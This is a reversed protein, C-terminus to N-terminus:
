THSSRTEKKKEMTMCLNEKGQEIREIEKEKKKIKQRKLAVGVAYPPEWILPRIPAAAEPRCWWWLLTPDSGCRHGVGYSM